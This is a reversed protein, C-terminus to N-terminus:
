FLNLNSFRLVLFTLSFIVLFVIGCYSLILLWKAPRAEQPVNDGTIVRLNLYAYFPASLFSLITAIHVLTLMQRQFFGLILYTMGLMVCLSLWYVIKENKESVKAPNVISFTKLSIRAYADIAAITTSFMTAFATSVIIPWTWDGLNKVYLDTLQTAFGLSGSAITVGKGYMVFAGLAVFFFAMMVAGLYGINFDVSSEKLTPQHGTQKKRALTWLSHWVSLDLPAPMWGMFAILFFFTAKDWVIPPTFSSIPQHTHSWAIFVSSITTISLVLIVWKILKDLMSYKGLGLIMVCFLFLFMSLALPSLPIVIMQSMIGATVLTVAALITFMSSLTLLIFLGFFLKGQRRYGEILSEGTAVTYRPGFEFFPYKFINILIVAPILAFGYLAGARTSQVLHSVGIASGALLIGPGFSSAYGLLGSKKQAMEMRITAKTLRYYFLHKPAHLCQEM